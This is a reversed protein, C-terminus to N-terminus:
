FYISKVQKAIFYIKFFVDNRSANCVFLISSVPTTSIDYYLLLTIDSSRLSGCPLTQCMKGTISIKKLFVITCGTLKM